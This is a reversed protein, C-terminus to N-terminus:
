FRNKSVCFLVEFVDILLMYLFCFKIYIKLEIRKHFPYEMVTFKDLLKSIPSNLNKDYKLCKKVQWFPVFAFLICVITTLDNIFTFFHFFTIQKWFGTNNLKTLNVLFYQHQIIWKCTFLKVEWIRIWTFKM